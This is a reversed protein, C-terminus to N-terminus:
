MKVYQIEREIVNWNIGDNADFKHLIRHLVEATQDETLTVGMREALDTVDQLSWSVTIKDEWCSELARQIKDREEDQVQKEDENVPPGYGFAGMVSEVMEEIHHSYM